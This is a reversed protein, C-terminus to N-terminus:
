EDANTQPPLFVDTEYSHTVATVHMTSHALISGVPNGTVMTPISILTNGLEPQGIGDERFQEYGLHYTGTIILTLALVLGAFRLRSAIGALRDGLLGFAILAPFATLMLADIVGYALGRWAIEFAFYAGDPHPTSDRSLVNWVLFLSIPVGLVVSSWAGVRMFRVVDIDHRRIYAGLFAGVFAFYILYYLDHHLGLLNSFVYPVLFSGIGGISFWVVHGIREHTTTAAADPLLHLHTQSAM